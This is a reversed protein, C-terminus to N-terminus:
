GNGESWAAYGGALSIVNCYGMDELALASLASRFGSRCYLLIPLGRNSETIKEIEFELLGRPINVAGPIAGTAYESPERVDITFYEELPQLAGPLVETIMSKAAKAVDQATKM